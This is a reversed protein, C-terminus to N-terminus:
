PLKSQSVKVGRQKRQRRLADRTAKPDETLEIPAKSELNPVPSEGKKYEISEPKM